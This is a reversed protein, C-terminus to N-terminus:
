AYPHHHVALLYLFTHVPGATFPTPHAYDPCSVCTSWPMCLTSCPMCMASACAYPPSICACPQHHTSCLTRLCPVISPIVSPVCIFLTCHTTLLAAPMACAFCPMCLTSLLCYFLAYVHNITLPLVPCACPQCHTTFCPTCLASSSNHTPCSSHRAPHNATCLCFLAHVPGTVLLLVHCTYPQRHNTSYPMCMTMPSYLLAHVLPACNNPHYHLPSCPMVLLPCPLQCHIPPATLLDLSFYVFFVSSLNCFVLSVPVWNVRSM